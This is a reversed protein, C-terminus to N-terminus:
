AAPVPVAAHPSIWGEARHPYDTEAFIVDRFTPERVAERKTTDGVVRLLTQLRPAVVVARNPDTGPPAIYSLVGTTHDLYWEDAADLADPVNEVWYRAHTEDMWYPRPGGPLRAVNRGTDVERIPVQLDTWKMLVVLRAEPLAAWSPLIDGSRFPLEIVTNTGLRSTTRFFDGNPTRARQARRGDVFLQQFYWTGSRVEPLTVKWLGARGPDETWGTIRVGGSLVPRAGPQAAIVLGPHEPGIVLPETLEHRGDTLLITTPSTLRRAKELAATVTRLPSGANGAATDDGGPAVVLTAGVATPASCSVLVAFGLARAFRFMGFSRTKM